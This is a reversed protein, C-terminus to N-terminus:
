ERVLVKKKMFKDQLHASWVPWRSKCVDKYLMKHYTDVAGIMKAGSFPCVELSSRIFAIASSCVHCDPFFLSSMFWVINYM